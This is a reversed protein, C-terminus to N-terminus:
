SFWISPTQWAFVAVYSLAAGVAPMWFLALVGNGTVHTQSVSETVKQGGVKVGTWVDHHTKYSTNILTLVGFLLGCVGGYPLAIMALKHRQERLLQRGALRQQEVERERQEVIAAEREAAEREAPSPPTPRTLMLLLLVAPACIGVGILVLIWTPVKDDSSSTSM